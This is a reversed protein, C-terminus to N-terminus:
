LAGDDSNGRAGREGRLAAEIEDALACQRAVRDRLITALDQMHGPKLVREGAVFYRVARESIGLLDAVARQWQAGALLPGARMLLERMQEDRDALM